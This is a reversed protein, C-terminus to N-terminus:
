DKSWNWLLITIVLIGAQTEWSLYILSLYHCVLLTAGVLIIMLQPSGFSLMGIGLVLLFAYIWGDRGFMNRQGTFEIAGTDRIVTYQFSNVTSANLYNAQFTYLYSGTANPVILSASLSGSAVGIIAKSLPTSNKLTLNVGTFLSSNDTPMSCSLNFTANNFTCSGGTSFTIVYIGNKYDTSSAGQTFSSGADAYNITSYEGLFINYVCPTTGATCFVVQSINAVVSNQMVVAVRYFVPSTEVNQVTIGTNDSLGIDTLNYTNSATFFKYLIVNVNPIPVGSTTRVNIQVPTAQSSNLLFIPRNISINSYNQSPRSIVKGSYGSAGVSELVTASTSYNYPRVCASISYNSGIMTSNDSFIANLTANLSTGTQQDIFTYNITPLTAFVDCLFIGTTPPVPPLSNNQIPYDVASQSYEATRWSTNKSTNYLRYEDITGNWGFFPYDAVYGLILSGSNISPSQASSATTTNFQITMHTGTYDGAYYNLVACSPDAFPTSVAVSGTSFQLQNAGSAIPISLMNGPMGGYKTLTNVGGACAIDKRAWMTIASSNLFLPFTALTNQLLSTETGFYFCQGTKCSANYIISVSGSATLNNKNLIDGYKEGHFVSVAQAQAWGGVEDEGSSTANNGLYAYIRTFTTSNSYNGFVYFTANNTSNGCWTANASDLDYKLETTNTADIFRVNTCHTTNWLTTNSTNLSIMAPFYVLADTSTTNVDIPISYEWSTNWWAMEKNEIGAFTDYIDVAENIRKSFRITFDYSKDAEMKLTSLDTEEVTSYETKSKTGNLYELTRLTGNEDLFLDNEYTPINTTTAITRVYFVKQVTADGFQYGGRLDKETLQLGIEPTIRVVYDCTLIGCDPLTPVGNIFNIKNIIERTAIPQGDLSFEAKAIGLSTKDLTAVADYNLKYTTEKGVSVVDMKTAVKDIPQIEQMMQASLTATFLLLALLLLKMDDVM